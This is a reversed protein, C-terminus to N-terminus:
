KLFSQDTPLKNNYFLYTLKLVKFKTTDELKIIKALWFNTNLTLSLTLFNYPTLINRKIKEHLKFIKEVNNGAYFYLVTPFSM